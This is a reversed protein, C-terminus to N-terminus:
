HGNKINVSDNGPMEKRLSPYKGALAFEYNQNQKLQRIFQHLQASDDPDKYVQDHALLVLNGPQKTKKNSFVSDVERLMDDATNTVSLTSPDYHWELDWGMLTYGAKQLSDAAAKSKKLDTYNLSDMRWINRGPTRVINNTLHLATKTKDFDTIVSDPNNYFVAFKNHWAHTYSHNCIEIDDAVQLSDWTAAQEASGFVHEGIIFFTVPVQERQAIALVNRTGKNPGDDFTLYIKKKKRKPAAVVPPSTKEKHSGSYANVSLKADRTTSQCTLFYLLLFLSIRYYNNGSPDGDGATSSPDMFVTRYKLLIFTHQSVPPM